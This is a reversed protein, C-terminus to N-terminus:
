LRGVGVPPATRRQRWAGCMEYGFADCSMMLPQGWEFILMSRLAGAVIRSLGDDAPSSREVVGGIAETATMEYWYAM